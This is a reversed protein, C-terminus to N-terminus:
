KTLKRGSKLFYRRSSSDSSDEEDEDPERKDLTREHLFTQLFGTITKLGSALDSLDSIPRAISESIVGTDDLIKNCKKISTRFEKLIFVVEVGVITLVTTLVLVVIVLLIQTPEM